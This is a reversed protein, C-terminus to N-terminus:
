FFELMKYSQNQNIQFLCSTKFLKIALIFIKLANCDIKQIFNLILINKLGVILWILEFLYLKECIKLKLM